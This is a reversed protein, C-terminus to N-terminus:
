HKVKSNNKHKMALMCLFCRFIRTRIYIKSMQVPLLLHWISQNKMKWLSLHWCHWESRHPGYTHDCKVSDGGGVKDSYLTNDSAEKKLCVTGRVEPHCATSRDADQQNGSCMLLALPLRMLLVCFSMVGYSVCHLVTWCLSARFSPVRVVFFLWRAVCTMVHLFVSAACSYTFCTLGSTMVSLPPLLMPTLHQKSAKWVFHCKRPALYLAFVCWHPM